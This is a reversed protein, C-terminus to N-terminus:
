WWEIYRIINVGWNGGLDVIPTSGSFLLLWEMAPCSLTVAAARILELVIPSSMVGGTGQAQGARAQMCVRTWYLMTLVLTAMLFVAAMELRQKDVPIIVGEAEEPTLSEAWFHLSLSTSFIM